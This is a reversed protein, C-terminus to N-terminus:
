HTAGERVFVAVAGQRVVLLRRWRHSQRELAQAAPGFAGVVAWRVGPRELRSACVEADFTCALYEVRNRLDEAWLDDLFGVGDDYLVVDGQRLEALYTDRAEPAWMWSLTRVRAEAARASESFGPVFRYGEFTRAYGACSLVVLAISLLARAPWWRVRAHVAGFAVFAMAPLGLTFRGWWAAPVVVAAAAIPALALVRRPLFGAIAAVLALLFLPLTLYPFVLGFGGARIDPFPVEATAYWSTVMRAFAGPAGFFAPPDAIREADLTGPLVTHVIPVVIRAPWFPNGEHLVNRVPTFAGLCLALASALASARVVAGRSRPGSAIALGVRALVIPAVLIAHFLGTVKTAVYLGLAVAGFVIEFRGFRPSTFFYATALFLAAAAVDAHTTHLELALSPLALFAAGLSASMARGVAHRRAFAAVVAAALPAFPIQAADDLRKSWPLIVHWAGLLELGRPYANVYEINTEVWRLAGSQALTHTMATHYWVCDWAWSPLIWACWCSLAVVLTALALCATALEKTRWADVLVRTPADSDEAWARALAERWPRSRRQAVFVLAFAACAGLALPGRFCLGALGLAMVLALVGAYAVLAAAVLRELTTRGAAARAAVAYAAWAVAASLAAWLLFGM